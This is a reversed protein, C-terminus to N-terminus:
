GIFPSFICSNRCIARSAAAYRHESLLTVYLSANLTHETRLLLPTTM